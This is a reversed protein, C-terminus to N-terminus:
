GDLREWRLNPHVYSAYLLSFPWHEERLQHVAESPSIGQRVIKLIFSTGFRVALHRDVIAETGVFGYMGEASCAQLIAKGIHGVSTGCANLFLFNFKGADNQGKGIQKLMLTLRSLDIEHDNALKLKDNEWHGFLHLMTNHPAADAIRTALVATDDYCPELPLDFVEDLANNEEQTLTERAMHIEQSNLGSVMCFTDSPLPSTLKGLGATNIRYTIKCKAAWFGRDISPTLNGPRNLASSVESCLTGTEHMVGLPLCGEAGIHVRLEVDENELQEHVWAKIEDIPINGDMPNFLHEQLEHGAAAVKALAQRTVKSDKRMYSTSLEELQERVKDAAKKLPEWNVTYTESAEGPDEWTVKYDQDLRHISLSIMANIRIKNHSYNSWVMGSM